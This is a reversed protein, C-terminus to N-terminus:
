YAYVPLSDIINKDLKKRTIPDSYVYGSKITTYVSVDNSDWVRVLVYKDTDYALVTCGRMPAEKGFEDGFRIIPYDTCADIM